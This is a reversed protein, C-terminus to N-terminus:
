AAREVYDFARQHVAHVHDAIEEAVALHEQWLDYLASPHHLLCDGMEFREDLALAAFSVLGAFNHQCGGFAVHVVNALVDDADHERAVVILNDIETDHHRRGLNELRSTFFVGVDNANGAQDRWAEVLHHM